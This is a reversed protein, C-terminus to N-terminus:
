WPGTDYAKQRSRTGVTGLDVSVLRDYILTEGVLKWGDDDDPM